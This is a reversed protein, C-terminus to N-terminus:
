FHKDYFDKLIEELEGQQQPTLGMGEDDENLLWLTKDVQSLTMNGIHISKQAM